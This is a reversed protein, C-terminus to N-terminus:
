RRLNSALIIRTKGYNNKILNKVIVLLNGLSAYIVAEEHNEQNKINTIQWLFLLWVIPQRYIQKM